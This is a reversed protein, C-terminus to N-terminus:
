VLRAVAVGTRDQFGSGSGSCPWRRVIKWAPSLESAVEADRADVAPVHQGFVWRTLIQHALM